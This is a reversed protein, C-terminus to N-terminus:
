MSGATIAKSKIAAKQRMGTSGRMLLHLEDGIDKPVKFNAFNGVSSIEHAWTSLKPNNKMTELSVFKANFQVNGIVRNRLNLDPNEDVQFQQDHVFGYSVINPTILRMSTVVGPNKGTRYIFSTDGVEYSDMYRSIGWSVLDNTSEMKNDISWMKPNSKFLWYNM